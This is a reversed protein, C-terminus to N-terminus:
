QNPMLVDKLVSRLLEDSSFRCLVNFRGLSMSLHQARVLKVVAMPALSGGRLRQRLSHSPKANILSRLFVDDTPTPLIDTLISQAVALIASEKLTYEQVVGTLAPASSSHPRATAHSIIM